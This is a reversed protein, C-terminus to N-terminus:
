KRFRSKISAFVFSVVVSDFWRLFKAAYYIIIMVPIAVSLEVWFAPWFAEWTPLYQSLGGFTDTFYKAYFYAIGASWKALAELSM